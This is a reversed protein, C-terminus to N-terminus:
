YNTGTVQRMWWWTRQERCDLPTYVLVGGRERAQTGCTSRGTVCRSTSGRRLFAPQTGVGHVATLKTKLAETRGSVGAGRYRKSEQKCVAPRLEEFHEKVVVLTPSEVGPESCKLGLSRLLDWVPRIGPEGGRRLGLRMAIVLKPIVLKGAWAPPASVQASYSGLYTQWGNAWYRLLLGHISM